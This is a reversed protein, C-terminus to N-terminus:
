RGPEKRQLLILFGKRGPLSLRELSSLVHEDQFQPIRPVSLGPMGSNFGLKKWDVEITCVRDTTSWNAVALICEDEGRYVTARVSDDKCVVPSEADWYGIMQKEKLRHDDWFKWVQPPDGSWGARNTIGYVMGRWRNGGGELMQGTLGFPIGSVEILWHDPMRDYNRQEGIWVLDIYPLLDAYLNLCNAYGALANFHNWSHFDIRGLPRYHDIVKRARRVTVRDLASDDVYVGDIGINKVMWDLGGIYFNNLRSDPTTIVSLDLEGAFPGENIKNLWAPIYNEKLNTKLWQDPGKPNIITTCADGPGPYIVEGQLSFLAWFEPLNKTLERTTYYLKLRKDRRHALDVLSKLAPVNEDLYPYNIFPYVDEAHHINVINAGVEEAKGIKSVANTGGGHFYRDDFRITRDVPKVPTILLELDYHLTQGSKMTRAGSFARVLVRSGDETVTVGGKGGNGWSPPLFLRGLAYYINILPRRYNEAKWKMHLGGNIGGIWLMDQNRTTDWQWRWEAPRYGGEHNLGMMYSGFERRMPVDLRIDNVKLDRKAKLALAYDVFGDFELRGSCVLECEPSSNTVSWYVASASQKEFRLPGPKLIILSGDSREILFQFRGGLLPRGDSLLFQNSPEFFSTIQQPLGDEGLTVTRGLIQIVNGTRHVSPFGRTTTDDMGLTTNLWALRSLSRGRDMGSNEVLGGGVELLVNITVTREGATQVVVQSRFKGHSDAPIQVGFWLPQIRGKPIDIRKAFPNGYCDIGGTNFCTMTEAAESWERSVSKWRVRLDHLTKRHAFVGIQFVFYEGPQPSAEFWIMDTDSRQAWVEPIGDFLRIPNERKEPFTVFPQNEFRAIFRDMSGKSAYTSMLRSGEDLAPEGAPGTSGTIEASLFVVLALPFLRM